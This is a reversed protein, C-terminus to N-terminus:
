TLNWSILPLFQTKRNYLLHVCLHKHYTVSLLFGSFISPPRSITIMLFIDACTRVTNASSHLVWFAETLFHYFNIFTYRVKTCCCFKESDPNGMLDINRLILIRPNLDKLINVFEYWNGRNKRNKSFIRILYWFLPKSKSWDFDITHTM